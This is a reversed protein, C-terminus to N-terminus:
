IVSVFLLFIGEMATAIRGNLAPRCYLLADAFDEWDTRRHARLFKVVQVHIKLSIFSLIRLLIGLVCGLAASTEYERYYDFLM